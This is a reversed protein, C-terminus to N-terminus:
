PGLHHLTRRIDNADITTRMSRFLSVVNHDQLANYLDDGFQTRRVVGLMSYGRNTSTVKELLGVFKMQAALVEAWKHFDDLPPLNTEGRSEIERRYSAGALSPYFSKGDCALSLIKETLEWMEM